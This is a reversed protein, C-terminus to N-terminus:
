APILRQQVAWNLPRQVVNIVQAVTWDSAWQPNADIWSSLHFPLCEAVKRFGHAEAFRQLILRREYLSREALRKRASGLYTEFISAVTPEPSEPPPNTGRQLMLEHFRREAEPRCKRGKALKVQKGDLQVMWWGTQKRFWPRPQHPM